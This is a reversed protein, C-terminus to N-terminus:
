DFFTHDGPHGIRADLQLQRMCLSAATIYIAAEFSREAFPFLHIMREWYRSFRGQGLQKDGIAKATHSLAHWGLTLLRAVALITILSLVFGVFRDALNGAGLLHGIGWVAALRVSAVAFRELLTFWRHLAE